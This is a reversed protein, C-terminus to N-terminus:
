GHFVEAYLAQMEAAAKKDAPNMEVVALGDRTARRYAIRDKVIARALKMRQNNSLFAQAEESESVGPHPHALNIVALCQLEPNSAHGAEILEAMRDLSWVDFQSPRFPIVLRDAVVMAARLERSDRGGVDIVVDEFRQALELVEFRLAPGVKQVTPVTPKIGNQERIVAWMATSGQKDGDILVVTHGARARMVALNVALVTKGTGGKEGGLVTIM